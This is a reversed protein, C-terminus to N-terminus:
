YFFAFPRLLHGVVGGKYWFPSTILRAEVYVISLVMLLPVTWFYHRARFMALVIFALMMMRMTEIYFYMRLFPLPEIYAGILFGMYLLWAAALVATVRGLEPLRKRFYLFTAFLFVDFAHVYWSVAGDSKGVTYYGGEGSYKVFLYGAITFFPLLLLLRRPRLSTQDAGFLLAAVVTFFPVVASNHSLLGLLFWVIALYRWQKTWFAWGLVIFAAAVEQRVLQTTLTFTIGVMLAVFIAATIQISNKASGGCVIAIAAGSQVYVIATVVWALVVHSGGSLRATLFSVFHYVPESNKIRIVGFQGGLYDSFDMYKLLVNHYTYWAWDGSILKDGNMWSFFLCVVLVTGFAAVKPSRFLLFIMLLTGLAPVVPFVISVMLFFVFVLGLCLFGFVSLARGWSLSGLNILGRPSSHATLNIPNQSKM